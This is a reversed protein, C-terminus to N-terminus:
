VIGNKLVEEVAQKVISELESQTYTRENNKEIVMGEDVDSVTDCSDEQIPCVLPYEEKIKEIVKGYKGWRSCLVHLRQCYENKGERTLFADPLGLALVVRKVLLATEIDYVTGYNKGNIVVNFTLAATVTIGDLDHIKTMEYTFPKMAPKGFYIAEVTLKQKGKVMQNKIRIYRTSNANNEQKRKLYHELNVCVATLYENKLAWKLDEKFEQIGDENKKELLTITAERRKTNVSQVDALYEEELGSPIQLYKM